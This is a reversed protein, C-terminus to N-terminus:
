VTITNKNSNLWLKLMLIIWIKDQNQKNLSLHGEWLNRLQNMDFLDDFDRDNFLIDETLGKLDGRLWVDLPLSFGMKPQDLIHGPVRESLFRRLMLKGVGNKILHEERLSFAFEILRSDLFPVRSELSVRMSARDVKTLIDNPLYNKFDLYRMDSFSEVTRPYLDDYFHSPNISYESSLPWNDFEFLQLLSFYIERNSRNKLSNIIKHAKDIPGTTNFNSNFFNMLIKRSFKNSFTSSFISSLILRISSPTKSIATGFKDFFIYRNYGGFLEDGGDGSLSVTVNSKTYKSLFYTPIQSSDAFPECYIEPLSEVVNIAEAPTITFEYHDTGLHNAISRATKSENNVSGEFRMTHTKIKQTSIEQMGAVVSTSDLGGSLFAGLPVDSIMQEKLTSLFLNEFTRYNEDFNHNDAQSDNLEWYPFTKFDDTDKFKLIHGPELKFIDEFISLPAPVNGQSIFLNLALKNLKLHHKTRFCKLESAFYISGNKISYYLPKEGARDRFLYLVKDKSDFLAAAFMGRSLELTKMLGLTEISSLLVESDSKGNFPYNPSKKLVLDKLEFFNYIEGNVSLIYRGTASIMPQKGGESTDIISLRSHGLFVKQDKSLYHGVGNPGRHHLLTLQKLLLDRNVQSNSVQGLIGCM